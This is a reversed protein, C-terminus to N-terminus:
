SKWAMPAASYWAGMAGIIFPMSVGEMPLSLMPQPQMTATSDAM